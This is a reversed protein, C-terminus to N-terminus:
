LSTSSETKRHTTILRGRASVLPDPNKTLWLQGHNATCVVHLLLFTMGWRYKHSSDGMLWVHSEVCVNISLTPDYDAPLFNMITNLYGAIVTDKNM